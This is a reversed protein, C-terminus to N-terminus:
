DKMNTEPRQKRGGDFVVGNNVKEWYGLVAM